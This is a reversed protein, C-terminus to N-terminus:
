SQAHRWQTELEVGANTHLMVFAVFLLAGNLGDSAMSALVGTVFESVFRPAGVLEFGTGVVMLLILMVLAVVISMSFVGFASWFNDKVVRISADLPDENRVRLAAVNVFMLLVMQMIGPIVMLLTFLAIWLYARIRAGLARRWNFVGERLANLISLPTGEARGIILALMAQAGVTGVLLDYLNALRFSKLTSQFDDGDSVAIIQLLASPLAFVVALVLLKPFEAWVLQVAIQMAAFHNLRGRISYRDRAIPACDTCFNREDLCSVCGFRGCRTCTSAAEVDFHLACRATM